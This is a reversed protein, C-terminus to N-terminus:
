PFANWIRINADTGTSMLSMDAADFRLDVLSGSNVDLALQQEGAVADWLIIESDWSGSALTQGDSTVTLHTVRDSHGLVRKQLNGDQSWIRIEHDGSATYVSATTPNVAIALLRKDHAQWDRIQKGSASDRLFLRGSNDGTLLTSGSVCVCWLEDPSVDWMRRIRWSSTDVEAINGTRLAAFLTDESDSLALARPAAPLSIRAVPDSTVQSGSDTNPMFLGDHHRAVVLSPRTSGHGVVVLERTQLGASCTIRDPQLQFLETTEETAIDVNATYGNSHFILMRDCEDLYVSGTVRGGHWDVDARCAARICFHERLGQPESVLSVHGDYTGIAVRRSQPHAACANISLGDKRFVQTRKDGSLGVQHFANDGVLLLSSPPVLQNRRIGTPYHYVNVLSDDRGPHGIFTAGNTLSLAVTPGRHMDPAFAAHRVKHSQDEPRLLNKASIRDLTTLDWSELKGSDTIAHLSKSTTDFWAVRPMGSLSTASIRRQSDEVALLVIRFADDFGAVFDESPSVAFLRLVPCGFRFRDIVSGDKISVRLVDGDQSQCFVHHQLTSLLFPAIVRIAEPCQVSKGTALSRFHVANPKCGVIVHRGTQDFSMQEICCGVPTLDVSQTETDRRLLHWAFGRLHAPFADADDLQHAVSASKEVSTIQLTRLRSATLTRRQQENAAQLSDSRMKLENAFSRTRLHSRVTLKGFATLLGLSALLTLSLGQHKQTWRWTRELLTVHRATVPDGDILRRLDRLVDLLTQYRRGPDSDTLRAVFTDLDRSVNGRVESLLPIRGNALRTILTLPSDEDDVFPHRNALLTFLTVGLSYVDTTTSATSRVGLLLEPAMWAVTGVPHNLSTGTTLAPGGANTFDAVGFDVIRPLGNATMLINSPKLDRHLVGRQHAAFVTQCASEFLKLIELDTLSHERVYADISGGDLHEMAFWFCDRQLWRISGSSYVYPIGAGELERVAAMERKFRREQSQSKETPKLVKVAVDREPQKERCRYVIGSGGEAIQEVVEYDAIYVPAVTNGQTRLRDDVRQLREMAARFAPLLEPDRRCVEEPTLPNGSDGALEYTDILENLRDRQAGTLVRSAEDRPRSSPDPHM